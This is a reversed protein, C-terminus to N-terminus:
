RNIAINHKYAACIPSLVAPCDLEDREREREIWQANCLSKPMYFDDDHLACIGAV